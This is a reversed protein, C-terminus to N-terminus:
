RSIIGIIKDIWGQSPTGDDEVCYAKKGYIMSSLTNQGEDFYNTKIFEAGARLGEEFSPYSYASSYPTANYAGIGFFNNKDRAINSTGYASELAAHAFLYKVDINYQKAISLFLEGKGLFPSGEPSRKAIWENMEDVSMITTTTLDKTSGDGGRNIITEIDNQSSLSIINELDNIKTKLSESEQQAVQMQQKALLIDSESGEYLNKYVNMEKTINSIDEKLSTITTEYDRIKTTYNNIKKVVNKIGYTITCISLIIGLTFIIRNKIIEKKSKRRFTIKKKM